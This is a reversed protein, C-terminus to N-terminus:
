EVFASLEYIANVEADLAPNGSLTITKTATTVSSVTAVTVGGGPIRTTVYVKAASVPTHQTNFAAIAGTGRWTHVAMPNESTGPIYTLGETGYTADVISIGLEDRSATQPTVSLRYVAGTRSEYAVRGLPRAIALPIITQDWAAIGKTGSDFKKAPSQILFGCNIESADVIDMAGRKQEGYTQVNTGLLRSFLLLDNVAIDITFRRQDISDYTFEGLKTDDGDIVESDPENVTPSGTKWGIIHYAPSGTAGATPASTTSGTLRGNSDYFWLQNYKSGSAIVRNPSAM